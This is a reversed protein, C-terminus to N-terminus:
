RFEWRLAIQTQVDTENPDLGSAALSPRKSRITLIEAVLALQDNITRTYAALGATGRESTDALINNKDATEFWDFRLTFRHDGWTRSALLFASSFDITKHIPLELITRGNMWQAIIHTHDDPKFLAGLSHFRTDWSRRGADVTRPDARNDYLVWRVLHGQRARAETGLYYGPRHDIEAYPDESKTPPTGAPTGPLQPLPLRDNFGPVFDHLAWGRRFLITGAPDGAATVAGFLGLRYNDERWNVRGEVALVRLEEAVWSNIASNTLAYPNAWALGTNELSVPTFLIGAKGGFSLQGPANSRLRLYGEIIDVGHHQEPAGRLHLMGDLSWGLSAKLLVDAHGLRAGFPDFSDGGYRTKGFERDLWSARADTWVVRLDAAAAIDIRINGDDHLEYAFSAQMIMCALLVATALYRFM